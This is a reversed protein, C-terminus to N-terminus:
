KGYLIGYRVYIKVTLATPKSSDTVELTFTGTGLITPTGSILCTAGVTSINLGAPLSTGDIISCTYPAVGGAFYVVEQYYVGVNAPPLSTTLVFLSATPPPVVPASASCGVLCLLTVVLFLKLLPM